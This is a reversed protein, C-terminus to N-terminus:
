QKKFELEGNLIRVEQNLWKDLKRRKREEELLNLLEITDLRDRVKIIQKLTEYTEHFTKVKFEQQFIDMMASADGRDIMEFIREEAEEKTLNLNLLDRLDRM